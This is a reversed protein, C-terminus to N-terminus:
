PNPTQLMGNYNPNAATAPDVGNQSREVVRHELAFVTPLGIGAILVSGLFVGVLAPVLIGKGAPERLGAVALLGFLIGVVLLGLLAVRLNLGAAGAPHHFMFTALLIGGMVSGLCSIRAFWPSFGPAPATAPLARKQPPQYRQRKQERRLLIEVIGWVGLPLFIVSLCYVTVVLYLTPTVSRRALLSLLSGVGVSLIIFLEGALKEVFRGPQADGRSSAEFGGLMNIVFILAFVMAIALGISHYIGLRLRM